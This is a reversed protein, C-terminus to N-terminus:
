AAVAPSCEVTQNASPQPKTLLMVTLSPQEDASARPLEALAVEGRRVAEVAATWDKATEADVANFFDEAERKFDEFGAAGNAVDFLVKRFADLFAYHAERVSEGRASLGGPNVGYLWWGGDEECALARGHAAVHVVFGDCVVTESFGCLLPYLPPNAM